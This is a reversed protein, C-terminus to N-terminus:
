IIFKLISQCAEDRVETFNQSLVKEALIQSKLSEKQMRKVALLSMMSDIRADEMEDVMEESKRVLESLKESMERDFMEAATKRIAFTSMLEALVDELRIKEALFQFYRFKKKKLIIKKFQVCKFNKLFQSKSQDNNGDKFTKLM